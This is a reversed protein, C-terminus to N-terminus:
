NTQFSSAPLGEQNFLTAEFYNKWGYRIRKPNKVKQASVRIQNNIIKAKAPIFVGEAGAIEFGNLKNKGMLGSGIYDFEIDIYNSFLRHNKYLPGSPVIDKQGYDHHLALKAFRLGVDQKNAPHIDKEEGIDLTIVMGTNPTTL